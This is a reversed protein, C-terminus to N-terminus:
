AWEDNIHGDNDSSVWESYSIWIGHAVNKAFLQEELVNEIRKAGNESTEVM